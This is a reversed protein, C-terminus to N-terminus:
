TKKLKNNELAVIVTNNFWKLQKDKMNPDTAWERTKHLELLNEEHESEDMDEMVLEYHKKVFDLFINVNQWAIDRIGDKLGVVIWRHDKFIELLERKISKIRINMNEPFEPDCHLNKFLEEHNLNVYLERLFDIPLAAMNEEGFNRIGLNINVNNTIKTINSKHQLENEIILLRDELAKIENNKKCCEKHQRKLHSNPFKVGCLECPYEKEKTKINDIHSKIDEITCDTLTPKCIKKRNIHTNMNSIQSTMYGCRPCDYEVKQVM